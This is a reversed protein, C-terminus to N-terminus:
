PAAEPGSAAAEPGVFDVVQAALVHLVALVCGVPISLHIWFMSIQLGVAEDFITRWAFDFGSWAVVLLFAIIALRVLLEVLRRLSRPLSTVILTFGLMEGRSYALGALLFVGWITLYRMLEESWFLSAGVVYRFFVQLIAVASVVALALIGTTEIAQIYARALRDIAARM